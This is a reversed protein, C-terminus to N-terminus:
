ADYGGGRYDLPGKTQDPGYSPKPCRRADDDAGWSTGGHIIIPGCGDDGALCRDEEPDFGQPHDEVSQDPDSIPCGPGTWRPVSHNGLGHDDEAGSGDQEDGNAET